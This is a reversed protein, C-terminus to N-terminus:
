MYISRIIISRVGGGVRTLINCTSIIKYYDYVQGGGGGRIYIHLYTITM